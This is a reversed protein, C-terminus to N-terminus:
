LLNESRALAIRQRATELYGDDAEFGIFRFGDRIAAVGTSGSGLFPDLVIGNPPTIMRVLWSMLETSKVTPHQNDVRGGHTKDKRSAKTCYFFRSAPGNDNFGGRVYESHTSHCDSLASPNGFAGGKHGKSSKIPQPTDSRKSVGHPFQSVIEESGDHVMNSPWRGLKEGPREKTYTDHSRYDVWGSNRKSPNSPDWGNEKAKSRVKHSPSGGPSPIRCADINLGGIGWELVNGAVTKEGLPKRILWWFETGPKLATGWGEWQKAEASSPATIDYCEPNCSTLNSRYGLDVRRKRELSSKGAKGKGIVERKASLNKDIAKSVDMNKPFGNGFHHTVCDRIEFGAEELAWATWHSTKPLAWVFGHAGPKLVRYVERMVETLWAVWETRGGKHHDWSKGMFGIGAPPDTVLSDISNSELDRLLDLCDGQRLRIRRRKSRRRM